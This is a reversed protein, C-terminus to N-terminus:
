KVSNFFVKRKSYILLENIIKIETKNIVKKNPTVDAYKM